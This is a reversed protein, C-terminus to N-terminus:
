KLCYISKHLKYVYKTSSSGILTPHAKNSYGLPIDMYVEEFLDGHLFANNVDLHWNKSTALALLIKVTVLKAAASFTDLFDIGEQQNYGKAVLHAKYREISDDFCHKTKYVWKSGISHKGHPLLVISWTHNSEMAVLEAQIAERWHKFPIAQHYFKPEIQSSIALTFAKHSYSLNHYSLYNALPNSTFPFSPISHSDPSM